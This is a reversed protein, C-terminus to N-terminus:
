AAPAIRYAGLLRGIAADSETMLTHVISLHPYKGERPLIATELFALEVGREAFAAGTYLESGAIPNVYRTAGLRRCIDIVRSQGTLERPISLASSRVLRAGLGLHRWIAEVLNINFAAVNVDGFEMIESLLPYVRGFNPSRFYAQEIQRLIRRADNKGPLYSRECIGLRHSAAAVPLTIWAERGKDDMIRNRNVWGGKIYQADDHFVFVGSQAILQFYGIYPFFYPQMISVIM